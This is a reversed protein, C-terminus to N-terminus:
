LNWTASKNPNLQLVRFLLTLWRWNPPTFYILVHFSLVFPGKPLFKHARSTCVISRWCSLHGREPHCCFHPCSYSLKKGPGPVEARPQFISGWRCPHGKSPPALATCLVQRSANPIRKRKSKARIRDRTSNVQSSTYLHWHCRPIWSASFCRWLLRRGRIQLVPCAM